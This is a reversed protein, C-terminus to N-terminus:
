KISKLAIILETKRLQHVLDQKLGESQQLLLLYIRVLEQTMVNLLHFKNHLTQM